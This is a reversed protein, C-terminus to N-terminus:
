RGSEDLFDQAAAMLQKLTPTPLSLKLLFEDDPADIEIEANMCKKGNDDEYSHPHISILPSQGEEIFFSAESFNKAM